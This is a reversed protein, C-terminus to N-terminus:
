IGELLKTIWGHVSSDKQRSSINLSDLSLLGLVSCLLEFLVKFMVISNREVITLSAIWVVVFNETAHFLNEKISVSESENRVIKIKADIGHYCSM